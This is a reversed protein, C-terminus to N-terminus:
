STQALKAEGGQERRKASRASSNETRDLICIQGNRARGDVGFVFKQRTENVFETYCVAQPGCSWFEHGVHCSTKSATWTRTNRQYFLSYHAIIRTGRRPVLRISRERSSAIIRRTIVFSYECNERFCKTVYNSYKNNSNVTLFYIYIYIDKNELIYIYLYVYMYKYKWKYKRTYTYM